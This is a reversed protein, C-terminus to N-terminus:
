IEEFYRYGCFPKMCEGHFGDLLEREGIKLTAYFKAGCEECRVIKSSGKQLHAEKQTQKVSFSM